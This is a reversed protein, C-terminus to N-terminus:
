AVAFWGQSDTGTRKIWLTEGVGGDLNRYDSGPPAIVVGTPAGHGTAAIYGGPDTDTAVRLHGSAAPRITLDSSGMTRLLLSGDGPPAIYDALPVAEARWAGFTGAFTISANAPVTISTLTWNEQFPNSGARAFQTATNCVFRVRRAELVPLGVSATAAGGTGDGSITVMAVSGAAGYGSGPNTLTVGILMGNAIQVVGAAGTGSGAIAVTASTYGSGASTIKIFGIEGAVSLQRMTQISQVGAPVSTLMVEDAIDPLLVTQAGNLLIPNAFLRQTNNWRNEEIIASDTHAYLCQGITANNTGFFNNRAVLVSQPADILWIGGGNGSSIGITNDTLALNTTALGFNRGSGDTEVNYVLVGWINDQLVNCRVSVGSSGGPNIGCSAGSVHNGAIDLVISGGADIGFQSNGTVTNEAVRSYGANALIGAGGNSTSGNASLLNAQVLLSHGSVAIGYFVNDHCINGVVAAGIVDPNANGWSPPQLNTQNFNGVAIGRANNWCTNGSIMALRVAQRFTADNYDACIGYGINDHARNGTIRAGDVAQLWIGHAANGTAECSDIVHSCAAPDSALLTLGNGLTPGGANAFVCDRFETQLCTANVLVAWSEGAVSPSNADFIIGQARFSPGQISIWASGTTQALRRLRSQGPAGILVAAVPITWQGSIAYTRPGLVVPRLTAVAAALAATDDTIGDGVAGFVEPSVAAAFLAALTQPASAGAPKVLASSADLGVLSVAPAPATSLTGGTLALGAGLTITEPTGLGASARGLLSGSPLTIQPQTGALLQARSVRRLIGSQSAPLADTDAAATAATLQDVTPM